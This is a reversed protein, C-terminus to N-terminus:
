VMSYRYTTNINPLRFNHQDNCNIIYDCIMYKGKMRGPLSMDDVSTKERGVAFRFTDERQEIPNNVETNDKFITGEQTKTTFKIVQMMKRVDDFEGSFFVNDFTKTLLPDKNIVIQLRSKLENLPFDASEKIIQDKIYLLKDPFSLYNDPNFTRFSSFQQIQEDYTLVKDEFGMQVENFKPDYISVKAKQKDTNLWSQVSKAKSLKQIGNGYSCIENKSDDYWYLGNPSTVISKDNPTDSGNSTTLYDYRDLVGGTGLVLPAQNNDTILSRDNVSAIGVADKQWFLLQNNFQKLNTIDGHSSDVDLYDAPKFSTWSDSIENATKTGSYRIRNGSQLNSISYNSDTVYMQADPQRSYADNYAFYPKSQTHGGYSAGSISLSLYPDVYDLDSSGVRSASSGYLLALNITTEFPIYDSVTVGCNVDPSQVGGWFQPIYMVTKHDLVGLYTDGGFVIANRDSLDHYTYTSIYTSNSRASYTNGSYPINNTKINVVPTTFQTYNFERILDAITGSVRPSMPETGARDININQQVGINNNDRTVVVCNGYYGTKNYIEQNDQRGNMSVTANLYTKGSISSHKSAADPWSFGEMIIPSVSENIDFKGRTTGFGTYHAIYRKGILNTIGTWEAANGVMFIDNLAESSSSAISGVRSSQSAYENTVAVGSKVQQTRNSKVYYGYATAQGGVSSIHEKHNTRPDLKLCMDARCGKVSKAMDDQNADIEPSILTSIYNDVRESVMWQYSTNGIISDTIQGVKQWSNGLFTYPRRTNESAIDYDADRVSHYPYSVTGSLLAQTLITRDEKTRNCRVIQYAKAGDPYNKIKFNIGIAKGYLTLDQVYWPCAEWCHPFKIDGIWYVPTAVNRENFFVIGFRYVEDRQYGKYKSAFYPDAYNRFRSIGSAGLSIQSVTSGNLNNITIKDSTTVPTNITLTNTFNDDLMVDTTVFEYDINLGTGGLTTSGFQYKCVDRNSFDPDQSNYPNICDHSEPISSLTNNLNSNTVIVEINQDESSGNLILKNSATFRYSRADYQPKWTSEKINAAFLINDKSEITAATFTSEQIKNFEEITITNIVNGGTDNFIYENTSSSIENEQFIEIQPDETFDNYKIRILRINDFLGEPVDNLKVKFNVSKGSNVDKNNGMYNKQGGSVESNTLHIANSVPSFNTASGRANFLQYSYQVIGTTLSGGGLSIVEPAGLLTSIQIDLLSTNKLNGNSDLLPNGNPTQMYRGDMINLTKITQDPSAIYIKIITASEYNAVIKVKSNVNYGLEGKVIVTAKLPLDDYGEVRYIRCIKTGDVTLIVGYKDVTTTALVTENPNLFDGGEVMRTDQVNQLVGTTGDTDTIVRVNEAYRYQNDPIMTVDTDLNMGGVFTNTQLTNTM